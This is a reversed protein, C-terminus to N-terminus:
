FTKTYINTLQAMDTDTIYDFQKLYRCLTKFAISGEKDSIQSTQNNQNAVIQQPTTESSGMYECPEHKPEIVSNECSESTVEMTINDENIENEDDQFDPSENQM